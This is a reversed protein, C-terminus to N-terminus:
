AFLETKPPEQTRKVISIYAVGLGALSWYIIPIAVISSVTFIIVLVAVSTATLTRGLLYLESRKDSIIKRCQHIGSLVVLFFGAFLGLGVLGYNLSVQLYTNVIDIIGQGQIMEQMEPTQLYNVSGFLPNRQIVIISNDLLKERYDINGKEINGIFPLLNIVKEGQPMISILPIAVTAAISLIALRKLAHPGTAIFIGVLAVAGVWPGRSLTAILGLTLLTLVLRKMAKSQILPWLFLYFGLAVVLVYGLVIPQGLSALARLNSGRMLYNGIDAPIGWVYPLPNYLLWGKAFEFCAIAAVVCSALVFGILAEKLHDAQQLARSAVYYPLFIDTFAYLAQRLSDTITTGRIELLITLILYFFILKDPLNKGFKLTHPNSLLSIFAPFLIIISLLRLYNIEFLYNIAGLGTIGSGISPVAFLLVFFLAMKNPESKAMFAILLGSALIYIWFNHSLFAILTIALWTNRWRKLREGLIIPAITKKVFTFTVSAILLIVVLARLYEPM